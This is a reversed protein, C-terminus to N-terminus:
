KWSPVPEVRKAAEKRLGIRDSADDYLRDPAGTALVAQGPCFSSLNADAGIKVLSTRAKENGSRVEDLATSGAWLETVSSEHLNGV